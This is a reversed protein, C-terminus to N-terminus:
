KVLLFKKTEFIGRGTIRCFYASPHLDGVPIVIKAGSYRLRKVERGLLDLLIIEGNSDKGLQIIAADRVPNPSITASCSLPAAREVGVSPELYLARIELSDLARGYIRIDDIAGSFYEQGGRGGVYLPTVFRNLAHVGAFNTAGARAGDVYLIGNTGDFVFAVHHWSGAAPWGGWIQDPAGKGDIWMSAGIQGWYAIEFVWGEQWNTGILTKKGILDSANFWASVTLRDFQAKFGPVTLSSSGDFLYAADKRGFRDFAFAEAGRPMLDWFHCEQEDRSNGDFPYWAVLASPDEKVITFPLLTTDAVQPRNSDFLRLQIRNSCIDPVIWDYSGPAAPLANAVPMWAGAGDRYAISVSDVQSVSWRVPFREGPKMTEQGHPHLLTIAPQLPPALCLAEEATKRMIAACQPLFIMRVQWGLGSTNNIGGCYSMISGPNPRPALTSDLCKGAIGEDTMCTDLPVGWFCSHTHPSNFNHGIEHAVIYADYTFAFTPLSHFGQLSSVAFGYDGNKGCLADFYGYGGGGYSVSTMVHFLDRPVNRYHEKWYSRVTDPLAYANGKVGYPDRPNDTWTNLWVVRIRVNIFEEYLMDVLTVVALAYARAKEITGGTNVFFDSDTELALETELLVGSPKFAPDPIHTAAFDRESEAAGCRIGAPLANWISAEDCLMYAGADQSAPAFLVGEDNASRIACFLFGEAIVMYVRSGAAGAIEGSYAQLSHLRHQAEAEGDILFRTGSDAAAERRHLLIDVYRGSGLPFNEIRAQECGGLEQALSAVNCRFMQSGRPAMRAATPVPRLFMGADIRLTDRLGASSVGAALLLLVGSAICAHLSFKM